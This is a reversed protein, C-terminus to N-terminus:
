GEKQLRKKAESLEEGNTKGTMDRPTETLPLPPTLSKMVEILEEKPDSQRIQLNSSAVEDIDIIKDNNTLPKAENLDILSDTQEKVEAKIGDWDESSWNFEQPLPHPAGQKCYSCSLGFGDYAKTPIPTKIEVKDLELVKTDPTNPRRMKIPNFRNRGSWRTRIKGTTQKRLNRPM